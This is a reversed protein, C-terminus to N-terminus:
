RKELNITDMQVCHDFIYLMYSVSTRARPKRLMHIRKPILILKSDILIIEYIKKTVKRELCARTLHWTVYIGVYMCEAINCNEQAVFAQMQPRLTGRIQLLTAFIRQSTTCAWEASHFCYAGVSKLVICILFHEHTFIHLTMLQFDAYRSYENM